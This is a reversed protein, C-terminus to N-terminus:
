PFSTYEFINDVTLFIMLLFQCTNEPKSFYWSNNSNTERDSAIDVHMHMSLHFFTLTFTQVSLCAIYDTLAFCCPMKLIGSGINLWYM